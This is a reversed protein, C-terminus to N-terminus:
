NANPTPKFHSRYRAEAENLADTRGEDFPAEYARDLADDLERFLRHEEKCGFGKRCGCALPRTPNSERFRSAKTRRRKIEQLFAQDRDTTATKATPM